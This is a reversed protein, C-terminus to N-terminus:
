DAGRGHCEDLARAFGRALVCVCCAESGLLMSGGLMEGWKRVRGSAASEDLRGEVRILLLLRGATAGAM